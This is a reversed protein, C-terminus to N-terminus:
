SCGSDRPHVAIGGPSTFSASAVNAMFTWREGGDKSRYLSRDTLVYLLGKESSAAIDQIEGPAGIDTWSAGGDVTRLLSGNRGLFMVDPDWPAVALVNPGYLTMVRPRPGRDPPGVRAAHGDPTIRDVTPAWSDGRLVFVSGTRGPNAILAGTMPSVRRWSGDAADLAYIGDAAGTYEVTAYVTDAQM